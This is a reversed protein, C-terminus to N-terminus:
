GILGKKKKQLEAIQRDLETIINEKAFDDSFFRQVPIDLLKSVAFVNKVLLNHTNTRMKYSRRCGFAAAIESDNLGSLELMRNFNEVFMELTM